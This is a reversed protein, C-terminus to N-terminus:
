IRIRQKALSSWFNQRADSNSEHETDDFIPETVPRDEHGLSQERKKLMSVDPPENGHRERVSKKETHKGLLEAVESILLDADEATRAESVKPTAGKEESDDPTSKLSEKIPSTPKAKEETVAISLISRLEEIAQGMRELRKLAKM